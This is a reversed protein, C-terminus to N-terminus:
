LYVCTTSGIDLMLSVFTAKGMLQPTFSVTCHLAHHGHSVYMGKNADWPFVKSRPLGLKDAEDHTIAVFGESIDIANWLADKEEYSHNDDSYETAYHFPIELENNPLKAIIEVKL